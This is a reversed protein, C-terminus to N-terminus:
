VTLLRQLDDRTTGDRIAMLAYILGDTLSVGREISQDIADTGCLSATFSCTWMLSTGRYDNNYEDGTGDFLRFMREGLEHLAEQFSDLTVGRYEQVTSM